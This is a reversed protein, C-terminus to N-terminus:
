RIRAGAGDHPRIDFGRRACLRPHTPPNKGYTTPHLGMDSFGNGTMTAVRKWREDGQQLFEEAYVLVKPEGYHQITFQIETPKLIFEYTYECAPWTDLFPPPNEFLGDQALREFVALLDVLPGTMLPVVVALIQRGAHSPYGEGRCNPLAPAQAVNQHLFM